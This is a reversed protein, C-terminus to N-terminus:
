ITGQERLISQKCIIHSIYGIASLAHAIIPEHVRIGPCRKGMIGASWTYTQLSLAFRWTIFSKNVEFTQDKQSLRLGQGQRFNPENDSLLYPLNEMQFKRYFTWVRM